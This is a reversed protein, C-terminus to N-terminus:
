LPPSCFIRIGGVAGITANTGPAADMTGDPAGTKTSESSVLPFIVAPRTATPLLPRVGGNQGIIVQSRVLVSARTDIVFVSRRGACGSGIRIMCQIPAIAIRQM